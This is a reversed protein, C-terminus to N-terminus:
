FGKKKISVDRKATFPIQEVLTGNEYIKLVAIAQGTRVPANVAEVSYTRTIVSDTPTCLYVDQECLALVSPLVGGVVPVAACEGAAAVREMRFASFGYDLMAEHDAWDKRDNLTVAVLTMGNRRAATVLCRGAALTYGTKVGILGKYSRLLKNHNVLYRKEHGEGELTISVTSVVEEFLPLKLAYATLRTLEGATTHHGEV